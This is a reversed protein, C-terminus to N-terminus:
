RGALAERVGERYSPYRLGVGLLRRIARGDVRRNARRTDAEALHEGPAPPPLDLLAACYETIERAQCPHEDAVPYAGTLTSELATEGIAALDEVHIRSVYNSGDGAMKHRGELLAAHVGRAPGYIAAPRLALCSWAGSALDREEELRLHERRRTPAPATTEDVAPTAGYVSTTGLYVVRAARDELAPMLLPASGAWGQDRKLLPVSYLVAAGPAIERRLAEVSAAETAELRVVRVGPLTLKSPDRTTAVVNAGRAALRGAVRRGTYGCGL